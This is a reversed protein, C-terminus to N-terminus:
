SSPHPSELLNKNVKISRFLYFFFINSQILNYNCYILTSYALFSMGQMYNKNNSNNNKSNKNNNNMYYFYRVIISVFNKVFEYSVLNDNIPITRNSDKLIINTDM